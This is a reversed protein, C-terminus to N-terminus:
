RIFIPNRDNYIQVTKLLRQAPDNATLENISKQLKKDDTTYKKLSEVTLDAIKGDTFCLIKRFTNTTKNKVKGTYILRGGVPDYVPMLVNVTLDITYFFYCIKGVIQLPYLFNKGKTTSDSYHIFPTGDIVVGWTDNLDLPPATENAVLQIANDITQQKFLGKFVGLPATPKNQRFADFTKYFGDKFKFKATLRTSDQANLVHFALLLTSLLLLKKM